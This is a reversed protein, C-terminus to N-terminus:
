RSSSLGIKGYRDASMVMGLTSRLSDQKQEELRQNTVFNMVLLVVLTVGAIGIARTLLFRLLARTM